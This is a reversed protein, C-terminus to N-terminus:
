PLTSEYHSQFVGFSAAYGWNLAVVLHGSVVQAWAHFGGNPPPLVAAASTINTAQDGRGRAQAPEHEHKTM